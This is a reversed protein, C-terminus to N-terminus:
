IGAFGPPPQKRFNPYLNKPLGPHLRPLPLAEPQLAFPLCQPLVPPHEAQARRLNGKLKHTKTQERQSSRRKNLVPPRPERSVRLYKTDPMRVESAIEKIM